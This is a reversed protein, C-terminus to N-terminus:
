AYEVQQVTLIVTYGEPNQTVYNTTVIEWGKSPPYEAELEALFTAKDRAGNIGVQNITRIFIGYHLVKRSM